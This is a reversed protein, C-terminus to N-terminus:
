LKAKIKEIECEKVHAMHQKINEPLLIGCVPCNFQKRVGISAQPQNWMEDTNTDAIHNGTTTM